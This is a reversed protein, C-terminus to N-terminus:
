WRLNVVALVQHATFDLLNGSSPEHYSFYGYQLRATVSKSFRRLLGLQVGYRDYDLGLPLGDATNNQGYCARSFAYSAFVGTANDLVYTASTLLSWLDGHYPTVSLSGNDATTTRSNQYTVTGAFHLRRFPTLTANASLAHAEYRGAFVRGGPTANLGVADPSTSVTTTHFDSDSWQYTLTTKLWTAPRATLRTEIEDSAIDRALIFGPYAGDHAALPYDYDTQRDRHRYHGGFSIRPWPSSNFGVRYAQWRAKVESAVQVFHPGSDQEASRTYDEQKLRAEGFLATFPLGTYRVLLNEEATTQDLVSRETAPFRFIGSTPDTPDVVEDMNVDGFTEQRKWEGQLALTATLQPHLRFQSNANAVQWVENLLIKEAFWASGAAPAGSSDQPTLRFAADGDLWSYRYGASALWWDALEKQVRATNAIQTYRHAEQVVTVLDPAAAGPSVNLADLRRTNSNYVEARLNDELELGHTAYSVDLRFIHTYEDIEKAAPYFNRTDLFNGTPAAVPGWSLMPKAGDKFQYEYGAVIRPWHPLALGVEFWARGIDLHLDQDLRYLAPSFAGYYGGTDDYYKRYQEFGFRTFGLDPKRLDLTLKYDDRLAHGEVVAARGDPFQQRLEFSEMGGNWGEPQWEFERFKARDGRVATWSTGPAFTVNLASQTTSAAHDWLFGQDIWARLLSVQNSTLPAGKGEPPMQIEPDLRAVYRILPSKASKGPLIDVGNDGGKLASARNTLRFNSKPREPGHCRLCNEELIPKIDRLFDIKKAAPPPLKAEDIEAAPVLMAPILLLTNLWIAPHGHPKM